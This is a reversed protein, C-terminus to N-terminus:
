RSRYRLLRYVTGKKFVSQTQPLELFADADVLNALDGSGHGVVPKAWVCGQEDYSLKVQLFYQLDKKFIFDEALIAYQNEFPPLGLSARLWPLVYRNCCMFSSVPNGPLAFITTGNAAKGFWFPKGPRQKVRHFLKEVGLQALAAPIYDFKGRSVGGSLVIVDYQEVCKKLAQYTGAADDNIHLHDSEINYRKLLDSIPFTNSQRIQHPLPMEAVTVLEDGTSITIVKPLCRVLLAPQGIAAAVGLEAASIRVGKPVIVSGKQRDEGQYHINQGCKVTEAIITAKGDKVVVEEYKIITDAGTALVAGTMIEICVTSNELTLPPVGAPQTAQISFQRQGKEYAEYNIAIGDMTVRNYPPLARDAVLAEQLVRGHAQEFPIRENGLEITHNLVITTAEPTTIM